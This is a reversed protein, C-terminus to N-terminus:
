VQVFNGLFFLLMRINFASQLRFSCIQGTPKSKQDGKSQGTDHNNMRQSKKAM